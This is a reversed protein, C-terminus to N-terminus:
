PGSLTPLADIWARLEGSDASLKRDVLQALLASNQDGEGEDGVAAVPILLKTAVLAAALATDGGDVLLVASPPAERLRSELRLLEHALAAIEDAADVDGPRDVSPEVGAARLSELLGAAADAEGVLLATM